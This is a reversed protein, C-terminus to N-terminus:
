VDRCLVEDMEPCLPEFGDETIVYGTEIRTGNMTPHGFFSVDICVTMGPTLEDESNPGFFPAEAENLGITHMFPCVLYPLLGHKEYYERAPVDIEKGKAGPKMMNRTLRFAERLHNVYERQEDTYKGSVPLTEGMVGCYGNWKPAIGIMVMEGEEMRKNLATPVVAQARPGSGVITSFGFGNAGSKRCLYEGEAAIEYEYMGPKLVSKMATFAEFSLSFGKRINEIEWPSKIERLALFDDTIDVLEVSAFGEQLQVYLAHPMADTGVLGVRKVASEGGLERFLDSFGIIEANPYEEDPVMFVTFNRTNTIASNLKAFPESEPGGLIMPEGEKRILVAGKEFQPCWGTLYWGNAINLEDYYVFAADLSHREMIQKVAKIRKATEEANYYSM